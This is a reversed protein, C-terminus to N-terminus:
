LNDDLGNKNIESIFFRLKGSKERPISNVFEFNFRVNNGLYQQAMKSFYDAIISKQGNEVVISVLFDKKSKQIVRFQKIQNGRKMLGELIESFLMPHVLKGNELIVMDNDRGVIKGILPLGRGCSCEGEVIKRKDGTRYRVLPLYYNNLDTIVTDGLDELDKSNGNLIFEVFVNESALHMRGAPCQHAILTVESCGYEEFIPCGFVSQILDRQFNYLIEGTVCVGKIRLKSTDLHEARLFAALTHLASPFGRIFEVKYRRLKEYYKQMTDETLDYSHLVIRNLCIYDRIVLKKNQNEINPVGTLKVERAGIDWGWWRRSRWKAAEGYDLAVRDVPLALPIGTSGSTRQVWFPREKDIAKMQETNKKLEEKTLIPIKQFDSETKIDEPKLSLKDFLKRYYPVNEYCHALLKKLKIWQLERLQSPTYWQSAELERLYSLVKWHHRRQWLPFTINKVLWPYM